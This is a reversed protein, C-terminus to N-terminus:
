ATGRAKLAAICFAITPSDHEAEALESGSPSIIQAGGLPEGSRVRGCGIIWFAGEPALKLAADLSETYRPCPSPVRASGKAALEEDLFHRLIAEDLDRDPGTAKELRAILDAISM